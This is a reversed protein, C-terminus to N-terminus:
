PRTLPRAPIGVFVGDSDLDQVSVAGAGLTTWEGIRRGPIVVSGAGIFAGVELTVNGTLVANPAVHCFDAITCDHDISASSNIICHQGVMTDTQIVAGAFVVTGAQLTAFSSVVARPHILTAWNLTASLQEAIRQRIKNSGIAVVAKADRPAQFSDVAGLNEFNFLRADPRDDVFGVIDWGAALATDVVVKAHGGAGIVVLKV